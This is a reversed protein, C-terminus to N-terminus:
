IGIVQDRDFILILFVIQSHCERWVSDTAAAGVARRTATGSPLVFKRVNSLFSWGVVCKGDSQEGIMFRM